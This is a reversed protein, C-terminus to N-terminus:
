PLCFQGINSFYCCVLFIRMFKLHEDSYWYWLIQIFGKLMDGTCTFMQIVDHCFWAEMIWEPTIGVLLEKIQKFTKATSRRMCCCYQALDIDFSNIIKIILELMLPLTLDLDATRIAM